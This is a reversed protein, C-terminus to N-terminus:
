EFTNEEFVLSIIQRTQDDVGCAGVGVLPCWVRTGCCASVRRRVSEAEPLRAAVGARLRRLAGCVFRVFNPHRLEWAPRSRLERVHGAFHFFLLHTTRCAEQAIHAVRQLDGYPTSLQSLM